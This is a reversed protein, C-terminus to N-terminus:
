IGQKKGPFAERINTGAEMICSRNTEPLVAMVTWTLTQPNAYIILLIGDKSTLNLIPQEGYQSVLVNEMEDYKGCGSSARTDAFLLSSALITVPDM